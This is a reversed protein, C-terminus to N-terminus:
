WYDISYCDPISQFKFGNVVKLNCDQINWSCVKTSRKVLLDVHSQWM